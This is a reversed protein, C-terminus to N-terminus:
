RERQRNAAAYMGPEYISESKAMIGYLRALFKGPKKLAGLQVGVTRLHMEIQSKEAKGGISGIIRFELSNPVWTMAMHMHLDFPGRRAARSVRVRYVCGSKFVM